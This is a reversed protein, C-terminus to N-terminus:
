LGPNMNGINGPLVNTTPNQSAGSQVFGRWVRFMMVGGLGYLIVIAFLLLAGVIFAASGGGKAWGAVIFMSIADCVGFLISYAMEVIPWAERGCTLLSEAEFLFLGCTTSMFVLQLIITLWFFWGGSSTPEKSPAIVIIMTLLILFLIVPKLLNPLSLFRGINM